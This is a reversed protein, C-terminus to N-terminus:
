RLQQEKLTMGGYGLFAREVAMLKDNTDRLEFPRYPFWSVSGNFLWTKEETITYWAKLLIIQCLKFTTEFLTLVLSM